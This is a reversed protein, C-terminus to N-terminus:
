RGSTGDSMRTFRVNCLVPNGLDLGVIRGAEGRRFRLKQMGRRFTDHDVPRFDVGEGPADNIRIMLGGKGPAM